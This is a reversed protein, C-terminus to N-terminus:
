LQGKIVKRTPTMPLASRCELLEPLKYKALGHELLYQTLAALEPTAGVTPVVYACAIEGLKKDPVPAIACQVIDPHLELLEEIERPNYKVGGRNIVDKSRGTISVNGDNGLLALDGTRFWGDDSFAGDTADANGLYGPFLLCGRVQLEGEVGFEVRAGNDDVVRVETGPSPRGATNAVVDRQDDLRTYLGAQTETMGWLQCVVADPLVDALTHVLLPPVASGSLVILRVSAWGQADVLGAGLCAQLHAPGAFLVTPRAAMISGSLEPPSFVPLMLNTAGAFLALHFSYLAYLHGLPAVSLIRDNITIGHEPVSLRANSLMNQYSLPVMKPASTTGSTFLLLFPDSGVPPPTAPAPAKNQMLAALSIAGPISDGQSIVAALRPLQSQLSVATAAPSFDGMESACVFMTAASTSLLHRMDAERHPLYLTTVVAGIHTAALYVTIFTATNPLQIALVNGPRLGHAFLNAALQEVQRALDGYNIVEGAQEIAPQDANDAVREELWSRLTENTWWGAEVYRRAEDPRYRMADRLMTASEDYRYADRPDIYREKRFRRGGGLDNLRHFHDRNFRRREEVNRILTVQNLTLGVHEAIQGDSMGMEGRHAEIADFAKDRIPDGRRIQHNNSLRFILEGYTTLMAETVGVQDRTFGRTM